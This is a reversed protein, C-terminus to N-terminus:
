KCFAKVQSDIRGRFGEVLQTYQAVANPNASQGAALAAHAEDRMIQSQKALECSKQEMIPGDLKPIQLSLSLGLIYNSLVAVRGGPVSIDRAKRAMEAAGVLDQSEQQLLPLAANLLMSGYNQKDDAEGLREVHTGLPYADRIRKATALAQIVRLVPKLDSSDRAMLRQVVAMASDVPGAYNYADALHALLTANDPYKAVGKSAWELLSATDPQQKAAVSIKNYFASDAKVSDVEFVQELADVACPFDELYLCANSKLDWLDANSPDIALGEEAVERAAKPQGYNIFLKFAQERLPQNTPAVRLMEQFVHVTASSDNMQQYEIALKSWADLSQPDGKTANQFHAIVTDRPKKQALAIEGLCYEALGHNPQDRLARLASQIADAPKATQNEWCKKADDLGKFAGGLAVSARQGFEELTQNPVQSITTAFGAKDNLGAARVIVLYRGGEGRSLISHVLFRAQLQTSLTRAVVPPLVADAPYAYQLLADNMQERSIVNFWKGSVDDMKQRMGDGVRVSAASDASNSTSPNAVMLRPLNQTPRPPRASRLQAAVEMTVTPLLLVLLASRNFRM